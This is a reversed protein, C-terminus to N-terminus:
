SSGRRSFRDSQWHVESLPRSQQVACSSSEPLSAMPVTGTMKAFSVRADLGSGAGRHQQRVPMSARPFADSLAACTWCRVFERDRTVGDPAIDASGRVVVGFPLVAECPSGGEPRKKMALGQNGIRKLLIRFENDGGGRATSKTTDPHDPASFFSSFALRKDELPV